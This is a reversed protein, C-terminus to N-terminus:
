ASPTPLRGGRPVRVYRDPGAHPFFSGPGSAREDVPAPVWEYGLEPTEQNILRIFNWFDEESVGIRRKGVAHGAGPNGQSYFRTRVKLVEQGSRDDLSFEGFLTRAGGRGQTLWQRFSTRVIDGWSGEETELLRGFIERRYRWGSRDFALTAITLARYIAFLGVLPFLLAFIAVAPITLAGSKWIIVLWVLIVALTAFLRFARVPDSYEGSMEEPPRSESLSRDM